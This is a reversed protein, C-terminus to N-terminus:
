KTGTGSCAQLVKWAGLSAVEKSGAPRFKPGPPNGPSATEFSTGPSPTPEDGIPAGIRLTHVDLYWAVLPVQFRETSVDGCNLIAERGGALKIVKPLDDRRKAESHLVRNLNAYQQIRKDIGKAWAAVPIALTFLVSAVVVFKPTVLAAAKRVVVMLSGVGYGGLVALLSTGLMMYRPNGAFGGQTMAAVLLIWGSAGVFIAVPLWRRRWASWALFPLALLVIPHLVVPIIPEGQRLTEIFPNDAFAPSYENPQKARSAARLFDGSGIYEPLFWLVPLAVACGILWRRLEPNSFWLWLGYLGLFPWVEPRLLGAATAFLLAGKRKGNIHWLIAAFGVANCLGESDGMAAYRIYGVQLLVTAAGVLGAITAVWGRRPADAAGWTAETFRGALIFALVLSILTGARAIILWLDPAVGGTIAFPVTFFMPLPKWSPGGTTQLNLHIIERGWVIWAWPDYTPTSPYILSFASLILAGAIVAVAPQRIFGRLDFHRGGTAISSM